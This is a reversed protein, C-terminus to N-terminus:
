SGCKTKNNKKIFRLTTSLTPIGGRGGIERCKLAAFASAFELTKEIDWGMIIGFGYGAHFIDGAGTTDKVKVLFASQRIVARGISAVSGRKGLTIVISSAKKNIEQVKRIALTPTTALNKAFEESGVIHDSVKILETTGERVRGADFLIPINYKKAIRTAKISAKVMLGDLLLLSSNKIASETVESAKLPAATPRKWLVTRTANKENIIIFAKQSEKGKRIRLGKTDVREAKLGRIIDAGATDDGVVGLFNTSVNLRSLAVLATAVPGGGQTLFSTAEPKTDELPFEDLGLLFDASCQGLGTVRMKKKPM